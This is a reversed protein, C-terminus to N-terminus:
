QEGITIGFHFILWDFDIWTVADHEEFAKMHAIELKPLLNFECYCDFISLGAIIQFNNRSM